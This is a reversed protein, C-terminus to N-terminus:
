TYIEATLANFSIGEKAIDEDAFTTLVYQRSPSLSKSQLFVLPMEVLTGKVRSLLEKLERVGGPFDSSVVHGYEVRSTKRKEDKGAAQADAKKFYYEYFEKYEPWSKVNDDPVARFAKRFVETNTRARSNWLSQFADSLPDVVINDEPSGWDYTNMAVGVPMFNDNPMEMDQPRILGLHKRFIQRRLSAAFRTAQWPRGAMTSQIPSSDNIVLSIESDHSGLMSRDNLNASGCVVTQDDVIMIKSHIYLEESVFADLESEPPGSWPVNRIDQGGLMYCTSVSDWDDAKVHEANQAAQQYQHYGQGPPIQQPGYGGQQGPPQYGSQQGPPQYGGQQGTNYAGPQSSPQYGGQQVPPQYGSQQGATQYSGQQTPNYAGQQGAGYGGSQSTNYGGQQGFQQGPQQDGPGARPQGPGQQAGYSPQQGYQPQGQQSGYPLSQGPQGTPAAIEGYGGYGSGLRAEYERRAEDYGIGSQQQAQQMAPTVNIRDYNRLNYFRIYDMPNVGAKAVEEMISHGGRCISNYQFEMIARTGLSADDVLDGAFAPVSPINVIIKFPTQERSARIIREVLAKGIMNKVPKQKDGTATIFFQNEIYIFHRSNQILDIYANQISHETPTGNSWKTCSRVLQCSMGGAASGPRGSHAPRGELKNEIMAGYKGVDHGLLKKGETYRLAEDKYRDFRSPSVGPKRGFAREGGRDYGYQGQDYSDGFGREGGQDYGYQGQDYSEGLGREGGYGSGYEDSGDFGRATPQGGYPKYQPSTTSGLEIPGQTGSPNNGTYAAYQQSAVNAESPTHPRPSYGQQPQNGYQGQGQGQQAAQPPPPFTSAPPQGSYPSQGPATSQPQQTYGPRQQGPQPSASPQPYSGQYQGSQRGPQPSAPPQPYSGQYQSGSYTGQGQGQQSSQSYSQQPQTAGYQPQPSASPQPHSQYQGQPQPSPPPRPYGAQQDHQTAAGSYQSQSGTSGYPGQGQPPQQGGTSSQYGQQPPQQGAPASQYGQQQSQGYQGQGYPGQQGTPTSQYGQTQPQGYQGQNSPPPGPPPPPFNQQSGQQNYGAQSGTTQGGYAAAVGGASAGAAAAAAASTAAGTSQSPRSTSQWAPPVYGTNGGQTPPPPFAGGQQQTGPQGSGPNSDVPQPGENKRHDPYDPLRIYRKDQRVNYKEDYIFNWRDVFHHILDGVCPGKLCISIDSWGMRSSKTRDLKNQFPHDVENFDMVRANNYDQGPFVIKNLDSPHADAIPHQNTDWRGFCLDLGGMFAINGDILCLKEHHAWYLIVDDTIGYIGKLADAGLKSAGAADLKLGQLSSLISSHTTQADPLHDPHRFVGINPSLAELAHKTHASSLTLAQTVEKYVIINIKVGRNAARLLVKDLRWEENRAPPRRLYLEPSLWWDLIWITQRANELAHSVAWMYSCGDVYWKVDNGPKPGYFTSDFRNRTSGTPGQTQLNSQLGPQYGGPPQQGPPPRQGHSGGVMSQVDHGISTVSGILGGLLKDAFDPKGQPRQQPPGGPYASQGPQPQAYPQQTGSSGGYSGGGGYGQSNVTSSSGYGYPDQGPPRQQASYQDYKSKFKKFTDGIIGRDGGQGQDYQQDGYGRNGSYDGGYALDEDDDRRYHGSM